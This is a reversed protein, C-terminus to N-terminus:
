LNASRTRTCSAESVRWSSFQEQQWALATMFAGLQCQVENVEEDVTLYHEACHAGTCLVVRIFLSQHPAAALSGGLLCLCLAVLAMRM